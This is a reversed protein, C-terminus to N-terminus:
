KKFKVKGTWGEHCGTISHAMDSSAIQVVKFRLLTVLLLSKGWLFSDAAYAAYRV